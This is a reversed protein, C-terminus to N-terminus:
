LGVAFLLALHAAEGPRAPEHEVLRQRQLLLSVLAPIFLQAVGPQALFERLPAVARLRGPECVRGNVRQLLRELIQLPGVGVEEGFAGVERAELLLALVIAEAVRVRFLDLEVLRVAAQEQGLESPQAIAVAPVHQTIHFVDGHALRTALPERGDLGLALDFLGHMRRGVHDPHIHAHRIEGRQGGPLDDSWNIRELTVRLPQRPMLAGHAAFLLEGAVPGLCLGADLLKMGPNAVDPAVMQM